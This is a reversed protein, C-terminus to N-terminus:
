VNIFVGARAICDLSEKWSSQMQSQMPSVVAIYERRPQSLDIPGYLSAEVRMDLSVVM